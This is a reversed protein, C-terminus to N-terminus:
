SRQGAKTKRTLRTTPQPHLIPASEILGCFIGDAPETSEWQQLTQAVEDRYSQLLRLREDLEALRRRMLARVEGCPKQGARSEALIRKIEDLTFGLAQARKIFGLQQLAREDYLRYGGETRAPEELLGAREYFRLTEIGIGTQRAVDGIKFVPNTAKAKNM